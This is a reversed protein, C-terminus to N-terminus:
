ISAEENGEPVEEPKSILDFCDRYMKEYESLISCREKYVSITDEYISCREKYASITEKRSKCLEEYKDCLIFEDYSCLILFLLYSIVSSVQSSHIIVSLEDEEDYKENHECQKIIKKLFEFDERREERICTDIVKSLSRVCEEKEAIGNLRLIFFDDNYHSRKREIRM